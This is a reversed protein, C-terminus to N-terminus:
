LYWGQFACNIVDMGLDNYVEEQTVIHQPEEESITDGTTRDEYSWYSYDFTFDHFNERSQSANVNSNDITTHKPKLLRTRKGDM